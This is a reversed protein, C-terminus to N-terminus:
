CVGLDRELSTSFAGVVGFRDRLISVFSLVSSSWAENTVNPALLPFLTHCVLFIVISRAMVAGGQFPHVISRFEPSTFRMGHWDKYRRRCLGIILMIALFTHKATEVITSTWM